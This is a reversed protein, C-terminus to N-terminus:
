AAKIPVKRQKLQAEKSKPLTVHLVGKAFKASVKGEDVSAPLRFARQFSGFRRESLQYNKEHEEHDEKKEGKLTLMGEDLVLEVDKEDMGALEVTITYATESETIDANPTLDWGTKWQRDWFPEM